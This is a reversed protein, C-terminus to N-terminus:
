RTSRYEGSDGDDCEGCYYFIFDDVDGTVASWGPHTPIGKEGNEGDSENGGHYYIPRYTM